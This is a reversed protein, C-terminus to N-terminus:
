KWSFFSIVKQLINQERAIDKKTDRYLAIDLLYKVDEVTIPRKDDYVTFLRADKPIETEWVTKFISMINWSNYLLKFEDLPFNKGPCSKTRYIDKHWNIKLWKYKKQSDIILKHLTILQAQSPEWNDFNWVLCVGLSERNSSIDTNIWGIDWPERTAVLEGNWWILWHYAIHYWLSNRRAHLRRKHERDFSIIAKKIDPQHVAAHHITLFRITRM